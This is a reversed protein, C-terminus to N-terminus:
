IIKGYLDYESADNIKINQFSGIKINRKQKIIVANDVEPADHETRAIYNKKGDLEDVLVIIKKGIMKRNKKLSIQGQIKMLINRREQKIEEPIPDGLGFANTNEERSYAFIGVRDLEKEVIFDHLMKFDEDTEGPYGTIFTTRISVNRIKERILDIFLSTQHHDMKRKMSKLLSSSVHQLPIDIYKCLNERENIVDLVELPFNLPYTYLLRIWKLNEIDSLKKLLDALQSKGSIDIGYYTTDQAIINIEKVGKSVLLKAENVIDDSERSKYKGKILPIACFSCNHNCGESIKLYAYHKPTLLEREGVLEKKYDPKLIKLIELEANIGLFHDVNKIQEKLEKKYRQSFCGCVIINKIIGRKKLEITEMIISLSEEKAPKIFGCTNVIVTNTKNIDNTIKIGNIKLLGGIRESDVTNKSCGLTIIFVKNFKAKM